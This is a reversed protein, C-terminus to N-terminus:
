RAGAPEPYATEEEPRDASTRRARHFRGSLGRPVVLRQLGALAAEVVIALAAVLLAGGLMQPYDQAALGDIVFRGLGGLSVYAAVTATSIVQLMASRIGSLVLPLACPTEVRFLVQQGTMGMGYAADRAAPDVGEVGAYTSTLIPPVALVVLVVISPVVFAIDGSILPGVLLVVVIVLGLTPLARLANALGAVLFTGKGTHGILLGAPIAILAAIVLSVLSYNLHELLRQPISGDGSWQAPDGFWTVVQQIM